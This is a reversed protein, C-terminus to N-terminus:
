GLRCLPGPARCACRAPSPTHARARQQTAGRGSGSDCCAERGVDRGATAKRPRGEYHHGLGSPALWDCLRIHWKICTAKATAHSQMYLGSSAAVRQGAVPGGGAMDEASDEGSFGAQM